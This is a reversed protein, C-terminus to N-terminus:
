PQRQKAINYLINVTKWNRTTAVLNLKKEFYGNSYKTKGYGSPCYIHIERDIVFYGDMNMAESARYDAQPPLSSLMSQSPLDSLFTVHLKEPDLQRDILFPNTNIIHWLNDMDRLLIRVASGFSRQIESEIAKILISSDEEGDFIVNGSQIYTEVNVLRLSVYLNRLEPLRIRNQNSVNIGRLLSIYTKM